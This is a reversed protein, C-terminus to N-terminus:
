AGAQADVFFHNNLRVLWKANTGVENDAVQSLGLLLVDETGDGSATATSSSIEMTSTGYVTSGGTFGTLDATSGVDTIAMAGDEQIEFLQNPDDAVWVYRLTSAERYQTSTAQIPEIAVIAGLVANGTSVNGTVDMVGNADATGAPKVLGGVYAATGTAALFVYRSMKGSFTGSGMSNVPRLGRANDSNAM